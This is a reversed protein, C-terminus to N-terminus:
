DRRTMKNMGFNLLALSKLIDRFQDEKIKQSAEIKALIRAEMADIKIIIQNEVHKTKEERNLLRDAFNDKPFEESIKGM